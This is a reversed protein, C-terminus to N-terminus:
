NTFAKTSTSLVIHDTISINVTIKSTFYSYSFLCSSVSLCIITTIRSIIRSTTINVTVIIFPPFPALHPPSPLLLAFLLPSSSMNLAFSPSRVLCAGDKPIQVRVLGMEALRKDILKVQEEERAILAAVEEKTMKNRAASDNGSPVRQNSKQKGRQAKTRRHM